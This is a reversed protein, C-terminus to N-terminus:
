APQNSGSEPSDFGGDLLKKLQADFDDAATELTTDGAFGLRELLRAPHEVEHISPLLDPHQWLNDRVDAGGIDTIKQWLAKAERLKRPRLELGVLSAFVKEAPGGVARRRELLEALSAAQPMDKTAEATVQDVWGAILALLHGIQAHAQEQLPTKPPILAGSKIIETLTEPNEPDVESALTHMHDTDICIGKAYDNIASELHSRLWKAHKFLRAHALERVTLYLVMELQAQELSDVYDAINAPIFSGGSLQESPLVPVGFDGGAFVDAALQGIANGLQMAFMAGGMKRFISESGALVGSLQEPLQQALTETLANTISEAVPEAFKCWTDISGTIWKTRDLMKPSAAAASISTTRDLWATALTLSQMIATEVRTADGAPPKGTNKASELACNRAVQRDIAHESDSSNAAHRLTGLMTFLAAPNGPLGAAKALNIADDGGNGQLLQQLMKLLQEPDFDEHRNSM